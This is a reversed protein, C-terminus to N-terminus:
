GSFAETKVLSNETKEEHNVQILVDDIGDFWVDATTEEQPDVASSVDITGNKPRPPKAKESLGM